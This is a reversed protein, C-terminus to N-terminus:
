GDYDYTPQGSRNKNSSTLRKFYKDPTQDTRNSRSLGRSVFLKSHTSQIFDAGAWLLFQSLRCLLRVELVSAM